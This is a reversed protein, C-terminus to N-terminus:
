PGVAEYTWLVPDVEVGRVIVEWHLHPGTALGSAGSYAILDGAAVTQGEAVTVQSLHHYGTFVGLGHDIIVSLGRVPLQDAYAVVGAASATVPTGEDIAFDTGHHFSAVPAGNYSRGIGYPSSIPANAPYLFAGSWRQEYSFASFVADRIAAEQVSLAPDLLGSQDPPIIVSEVPYGASGVNVIASLEAAITGASNYLTVSVPYSGPALDATVGLVAWFGGERPSLPYERGNFTAVASGGAANVNLVVFGGQAVSLSPQVVEPVPTATPTASPTSTATSTPTVTPTAAPSGGIVGCGSSPAALLLLLLPALRLLRPMHRAM